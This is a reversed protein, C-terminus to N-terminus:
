EETFARKAAATQAVAEAVTGQEVSCRDMICTKDLHIHTEVLGPAVLRGALDIAPGASVLAPAIQMVRGGAITIDVLSDGLGFVRANRLILNMSDRLDHFGTDTWGFLRRAVSYGGRDGRGPRRARHARDRACLRSRCARAGSGGDPRGAPA